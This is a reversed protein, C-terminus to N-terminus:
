PIFYASGCPQIWGFGGFLVGDIGFGGSLRHGVGRGRQDAVPARADDGERKERGLRHVPILCSFKLPNGIALATIPTLAGAQSDTHLHSM